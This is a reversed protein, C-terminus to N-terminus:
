SNSDPSGEEQDRRTTGLLKEHDVGFAPANKLKFEDLAKRMYEDRCEYWQKLGGIGTALTIPGKLLYWGSSYVEVNEDELALKHAEENTM